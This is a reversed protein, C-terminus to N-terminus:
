LVPVTTVGNFIANIAKNSWRSNEYDVRDWESVDRPITVEHPHNRAMSLQRDFVNM